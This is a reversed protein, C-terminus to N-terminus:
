IYKGLCKPNKSFIKGLSDLGTKMNVFFARQIWLCHPNPNVRPEALLGVLGKVVM